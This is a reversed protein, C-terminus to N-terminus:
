LMDFLVDDLRAEWPASPEAAFNIGVFVSTSGTVTTGRLAAHDIAIVGDLWASLTAGAPSFHVEYALRVWRGLAISPLPFDTFTPAGGAPQSLEEMAFGGATVVLSLYHNAGTATNQVQIAVFSASVANDRKDIRLSLEYRYSSAPASPIVHYEAANASPGADSTLTSVFLASPPSTVEAGDHQVLGHLAEQQWSTHVPGDYDECLTHTGHTACFPPPAQDVLPADLADAATADLPPAFADREGPPPAIVDTVHSADAAPGGADVDGVVELRDLGAVTACGALAASLLVVALRRTRRPRSRM